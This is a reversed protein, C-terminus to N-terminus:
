VVYRTPGPDNSEEEVDWFTASRAMVRDLDPSICGYSLPRSWRPACLATYRIIGDQLNNNIFGELLM